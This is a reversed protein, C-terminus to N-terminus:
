IYLFVLMLIFLDPQPSILVETFLQCNQPFNRLEGQLQRMVYRFTYSLNSLFFIHLLCVTYHAYHANPQLVSSTILILFHVSHFVECYSMYFIFYICVKKRLVIHFCYYCCFHSHFSSYICTLLLLRAQFLHLHCENRLRSYRTIQM